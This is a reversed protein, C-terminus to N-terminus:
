IKKEGLLARLDDIRYPRSACQQDFAMQSMIFEHRHLVFAKIRDELTPEAAELADLHADFAPDGSSGKAPRSEDLRKISGALKLEIEEVKLDGSTAALDRADFICQVIERPELVVAANELEPKFELPIGFPLIDKELSVDARAMSPVLTIFLLYRAFL